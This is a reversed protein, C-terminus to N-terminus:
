KEKKKKNFINFRFKIQCFLKLLAVFGWVQTANDSLMNDLQTMAFECITCQPGDNVKLTQASFMCFANPTLCMKKKENALCTTVTAINRFHICFM